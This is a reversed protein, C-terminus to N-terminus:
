GRHLQMRPGRSDNGWTSRPVSNAMYLPLPTHGVARRHVACALRQTKCPLECARRLPGPAAATAM